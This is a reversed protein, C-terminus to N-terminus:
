EKKVEGESETDGSQSILNVGPCAATPETTDCNLPLRRYPLRNNCYNDYLTRCDYSGGSMVVQRVIGNLEGSCVLRHMQLPRSM